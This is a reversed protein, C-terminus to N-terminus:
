WFGRKTDDGGNRESDFATTMTSGSLSPTGHATSSATPLEAEAPFRDDAGAPFSPPCFPHRVQGGYLAGRRLRWFISNLVWRDDVGPAGGAQEAALAADRVVNTFSVRSDQNNARNVQGDFPTSCTHPIQFQLANALVL